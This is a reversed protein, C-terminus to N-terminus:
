GPEAVARHLSRRFRGAMAGQIAARPLAFVSTARRASASGCCVIDSIFGFPTMTPGSELVAAFVIPPLNTTAWLM